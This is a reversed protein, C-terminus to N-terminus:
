MASAPSAPEVGSKAVSGTAAGAADPLGAPALAAGEIGSALLAWAEVGASAVGFPDGCGTDFWPSVPRTLTTAASPDCRTRTSPRVEYLKRPSTTPAAPTATPASPMM